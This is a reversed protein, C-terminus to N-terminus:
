NNMIKEVGWYLESASKMVHVSPDSLIEVTANTESVSRGVSLEVCVSNGNKVFLALALVKAPGAM